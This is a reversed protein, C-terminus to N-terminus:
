LLVLHAAIFLPRFEARPECAVIQKKRADVRASALLTRLIENKASVEQTTQWVDMLTGLTEGVEEVDAPSQLILADLEGQLRDMDADYEADTKCGREYMRDM